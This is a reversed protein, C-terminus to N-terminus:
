LKAIVWQIAWGFIAGISAAIASWRATTNKVEDISTHLVKMEDHAQAFRTNDHDEHRDLWGRFAAFENIITDAKEEM